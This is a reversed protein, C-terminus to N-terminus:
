RPRVGDFNSLHDDKRYATPAGGTGGVGGFTYIQLGLTELESGPVPFQVPTGTVLDGLGRDDYFALGAATQFTEIRREHKLKAWLSASDLHSQADKSSGAPDSGTAPNLMGREVRTKNILDAVVAASGGTRLLAEAKYMDMETMIMHPMAGNGGSSLFYQYRKHNHSSYHYVGRAAPFPGNNGQYEFDTGDVTPDDPDGVIRRDSTVIDFVFRDKLPKSLWDAYGGSEDAPGITRYDARSWTTGNQGYFTLCDDEIAGDDDGVPAFDETIGSDILSIVESWNVAAREAEDRAVQVTFRAIFSNILKVMDGSTVDLGFIWDETATFTFSGSQALSRADKLMQIAAQNVETYPKLELEDNELDVTEDVIFAQDFIMSLTAHMLGQNMKAFAKLRQTDYGARTFINNDASGEEEARAIAQLADNANSIGRYHAFWPFSTSSARSYTSSNDWAIRPESSMDRMGWNAWSSSNEDALTSYFLAGRSCEQVSRWYDAFTGKVLNVVDGPQSFAVARDPANKNEVALDQCGAVGLGFICLLTYFAFRKMHNKNESKM